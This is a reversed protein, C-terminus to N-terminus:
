QGSVGQADLNNTEASPNVAQYPYGYPMMPRQWYPGYGYRPVPPGYMPHGYGPPVSYTGQQTMPGRYPQYPHGYRNQRQQEWEARQQDMEARRADMQKQMATYDPAAPAPRAKEWEARQQDMEARRADMAKQMAEHDPVAPAPHAKEWEARQQDMEARRADMAKQMAAYDPGAPAGPAAHTQEWLARREAMEKKMAERHAAQQALFEERSIGGPQSAPGAAWPPPQYAPPTAENPQQALAPTSATGNNNGTTPPATQTQYMGPPPPTMPQRQTWSPQFGTTAQPADEAVGASSVMTTMLALLISQHLKNM